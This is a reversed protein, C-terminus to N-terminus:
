EPVLPCRAHHYAWTRFSVRTKASVFKKHAYVYLIGSLGWEIMRKKFKAQRKIPYRYLGCDCLFLDKLHTEKWNHM